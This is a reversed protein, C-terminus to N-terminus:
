KLQIIGGIKKITMIYFLFNKLIDSKRAFLWGIFTMPHSKKIITITTIITMIDTLKPSNWTAVNKTATNM